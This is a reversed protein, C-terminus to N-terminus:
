VSLLGSRALAADLSAGFRETFASPDRLAPIQALREREKHLPTPDDRWTALLQTVPHKATAGTPLLDAIWIGHAAARLCLEAYWAQRAADFGPFTDQDIGFVDNISHPRLNPFAAKASDIGPIGTVGVAPAVFIVAAHTATRVPHPLYHSATFTSGGAVGQLAERYGLVDDGAAEALGLLFEAAGSPGAAARIRGWCRPSFGERRVLDGQGDSAVTILLGECAHEGPSSPADAASLVAGTVSAGKLAVDMALCGGRQAPKAFRRTTELRVPRADVVHELQRGLGEASMLSGYGVFLESDKAL